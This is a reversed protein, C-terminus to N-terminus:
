AGCSSMYTNMRPGYYDDIVVDMYPWNEDTCNAYENYYPDSSSGGNMENMLCNFLSCSMNKFYLINNFFPM